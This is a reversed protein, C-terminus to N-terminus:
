SKKLRRGCEECRAPVGTKHYPVGCRACLRVDKEFTLAQSSSRCEMDTVQPPEVHLKEGESNRVGDAAGLDEITRDDLAVRKPIRALAEAVIRRAAPENDAIPVIHTKGKTKIQLAGADVDISEIQWWAVRSVRGEGEEFGVGLEGVRLPKDASRGLFLYAVVLTAGVALAYNTWPAPPLSPDRLMAAYFGIGVGIGGLSMLVVWLYDKTGTAPAFRWEEFDDSLRRLSRSSARKTAGGTAKKRRRAM